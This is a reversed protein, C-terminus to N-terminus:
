HVDKLLGPNAPFNIAMLVTRKQISISDVDCTKPKRQFVCSDLVTTEPDNGPTVFKSQLLTPHSRPITTHM